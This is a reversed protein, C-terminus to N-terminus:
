NLKDKKKKKKINKKFYNNVFQIKDSVIFKCFFLLSFCIFRNSLCGTLFSPVTWWCSLSKGLSYLFFSTRVVVSNLANSKEKLGDFFAHCEVYHFM